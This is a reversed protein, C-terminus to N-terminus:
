EVMVGVPEAGADSAEKSSLELGRVDPCKFQSDNFFVCNGEGDM